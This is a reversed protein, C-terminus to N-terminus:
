YGGGPIMCQVRGQYFWAAVVDPVGTQGALDILKEEPVDVWKNPIGRAPDPHKPKVQIKDGDQRVDVFDFENEVCCSRGLRDHQRAIWAREEATLHSLQEAAASGPPPPVARVPAPLLALALAIAAVTRM